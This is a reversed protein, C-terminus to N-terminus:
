GLALQPPNLGYIFLALMAVDLAELPLELMFALDIFTAAFAL